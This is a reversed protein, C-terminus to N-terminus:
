RDLVATALQRAQELRTHAEEYSGRLLLVQGLGEAVTVRLNLDSSMEAGDLAIRYYQEAVELAHRARAQEAARLANPLAREPLSAAHFHYALEFVAGADREEVAAAAERHMRARETRDFQALLTERIRDHVFMACDEDPRRWVLHRHHADALIHA